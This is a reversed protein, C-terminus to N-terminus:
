LRGERSIAREVCEQLDGRLKAVARQTGRVSRGLAIAIDRISKGSGYCYALLLRGSDTLKALCDGLARYRDDTEGAMAEADAAVLELVAPRLRARQRSLRTRHNQVQFFAIRRSWAGFEGAPDYDAFQEWLRIKTNQLIDDCDAWNPVLSAM